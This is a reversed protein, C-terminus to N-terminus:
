DGVKTGSVVEHVELGDIDASLEAITSRVGDGTISRPYAWLRKALAYMENGRQELNVENMPTTAPKSQISITM